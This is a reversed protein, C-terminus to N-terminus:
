TSYVGAPDRLGLRTLNMLDLGIPFLNVHYQGWNQRTTKWSISLLHIHYEGTNQRTKIPSASLPNTHYKGTNRCTKVKALSLVNVRHEGSNRRTRIVGLCGLTIHHEGTNWYMKSWTLHSVTLRDSHRVACPMFNSIWIFCPFKINWQFSIPGRRHALNWGKPSQYEASVNYILWWNRRFLVCDTVMWFIVSYIINLCIISKQKLFLIFCTVSHFFIKYIKCCTARTKAVPTWFNLRRLHRTLISSRLLNQDGNHRRNTVATTV